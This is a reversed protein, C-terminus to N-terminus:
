MPRAQTVAESWLERCYHWTFVVFLFALIPRVWDIIYPCYGTSWSGIIPLDVEIESCGGGFSYWSSYGVPSVVSPPAAVDTKIDNLKDIYPKYADSIEPMEEQDDKPEEDPEQGPELPPETTTSTTTQGDKTVSTTTTVTYDFSNQTYTYNYKNQTTTTTTSTTGDPNQTTTTSSQKPGLQSSPGHNPRRSVLDQYCADPSLSGACKAKTLDRLWDSNTVSAIASDLSQWDSETFDRQSSGVCEGTPGLSSGSPCTTGRAYGFGDTTTTTQSSSGGFPYYSISCSGVTSGVTQWPLKVAKSSAIFNSGGYVSNVPFVSKCAADASPFYQGPNTSSSSTVAFCRTGTTCQYTVPGGDSLIVPQNNVVAGGPIQEIAWMVASTAIIGPVGGGKLTGVVSKALKAPNITVVPKIPVKIKPATGPMVQGLTSGAQFRSGATHTATFEPGFYAPDGYPLGVAGQAAGMINSFPPEPTTVRTAAFVSAGSLFLAVSTALVLTARKM